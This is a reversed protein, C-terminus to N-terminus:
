GEVDEAEGGFAARNGEENRDKAGAHRARDGDIVAEEGSGDEGGGDEEDEGKGHETAADGEEEEITDGVGDEEIGLEGSVRDEELVKESVKAVGFDVYDNEGGKAEDRGGEDTAGVEGDGRM